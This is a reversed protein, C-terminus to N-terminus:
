LWRPVRSKYSTYQTGFKRELYNEEREIVGRQMIFLTFPLLLLPWLTNRLLAIGSYLLTLSVYIPNRTFQYPGSTVITTTPEMPSVNTGAGRMTRFALIGLTISKVLLLVGLPRAVKGPALPLPKIGHLILGALLMGAYILPPPAIVGANDPQTSVSM